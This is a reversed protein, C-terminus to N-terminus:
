GRRFAHFPYEWNGQVSNKTRPLEVEEPKETDQMYIGGIEPLERSMFEKTENQPTIPYGFYGTCGALIADRGVAENGDCIAIQTVM